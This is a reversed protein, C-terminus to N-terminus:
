ATCRYPRRLRCRQKLRSRSYPAFSGHETVWYIPHLIPRATREAVHRLIGTATGAMGFVLVLGGVRASRVM